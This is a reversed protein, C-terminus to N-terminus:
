PADYGLEKAEEVLKSIPMGRLEAAKAIDREAEVSRGLKGYV